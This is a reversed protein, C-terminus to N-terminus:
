RASIIQEQRSGFFGQPRFIMLLMLSLGLVAFRIAGVDVTDVIGGFWDEAVAQRLFVDFAQFLFWFVFSGVIPGWLTGPGGIIVITYIYFTVLPQFEGPSVNQRDLALVMGALAAILGGVTLAQLKYAFVNKGVSSVADEDDGVARVVRGWPSGMLRSMAFMTLAVLTWAIAMIWLQRASFVFDITWGGVSRLGYRGSPIPNADVIDAGASQIGRPGHTVSDAWRSNAALRLIEAAAITVIALYDGRLRLTPVGLLVALAAGAGLGALVGVWTPADLGTPDCVVAFGYAGVLMFAVHGFNLLRAMGFQVNLGIASLAFAAGTVGVAATIGAVVITTLDM